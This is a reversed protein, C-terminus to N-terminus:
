PSSSKLPSSSRMPSSARPSPPRPTSGPFAPKLFDAWENYDLNADGDADIRRVIAVLEMESAYHGNQRLFSGLNVTNIRGTNYRDVSRFAAFSTYDYQM